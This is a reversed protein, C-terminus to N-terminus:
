TAQPMGVKASAAGGNFVQTRPGIKEADIAAARGVGQAAIVDRQLLKMRPRGGSRVNVADRTRDPDRHMSVQAILRINPAFLRMHPPCMLHFRPAQGVRDVVVRNRTQAVLGAIRQQTETGIRKALRTTKFPYGRSIQREHRNVHLAPALRM